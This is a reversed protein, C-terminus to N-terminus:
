FSPLCRLPLEHTLVYYNDLLRESIEYQMEASNTREAEEILTGLDYQELNDLDLESSSGVKTGCKLCFVAEEPLEAGCKGCVNKQIADVLKTGCKMCFEADENYTAGCKPCRKGIKATEIVQEVLQSGDKKCFNESDEYECNCKPCIKM